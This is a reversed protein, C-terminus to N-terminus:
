GSRCLPGFIHLLKSISGMNYSTCQWLFRAEKSIHPHNEAKKACGTTNCEVRNVYLCINICQICINERYFMFEALASVQGKQSLAKSPSSVTTTRSFPASSMLQAIDFYTHFDPNFCSSTNVFRTLYVGDVFLVNSKGGAFTIRTSWYFLISSNRQSWIVTSCM